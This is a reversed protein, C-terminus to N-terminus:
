VERFFDLRKQLVLIFIMMILCISPLFNNFDVILDNNRVYTPISKDLLLFMFLRTFAYNMVARAPIFLFFRKFVTSSTISNIQLLVCIGGFGIAASVYPLYGLSNPSLDSLSTVELLSRLFIKTNNSITNGFIEFIGIRELVAIVSSFFIIVACMGFLAEGAETVSATLANGFDTSTSTTDIINPKFVRIVIIALLFNTTIVSLLLVLGVRMSNYIGLGVANIIYAPGAAYCCIFLSQASAKDTKGTKLMENIISAGIPYGAINSLVFLGIFGKPIEFLKYLLFDLPKFLIKLTDTKILLKSVAMFSFLSPVIIYVCRKIAMVAAEGVKDAYIIISAAFACLIIASLSKRIKQM